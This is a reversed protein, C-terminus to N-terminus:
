CAESEPEPQPQPEPAARQAAQVAQVQAALQDQQQQLQAAKAELAAEREALRAAAAAEHAALEERQKALREADAGPEPAPASEAEIGPVHDVAVAPLPVAAAGGHAARVLEIITPLETDLQELLTGRAPVSNLKNLGEQVETRMMIDDINTTAGQLEAWQDAERPLDLELRVPIIRVGNQLATHVEKLCPISRYFAKTQLVLLVQAGESKKLM